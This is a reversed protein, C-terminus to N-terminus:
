DSEIPLLLSMHCLDYCYWWMIDRGFWKKELSLAIPRYFVHGIRTKHVTPFIFPATLVYLMTTVCIGIFVGMVIRRLWITFAKKMGLLM